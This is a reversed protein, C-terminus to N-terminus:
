TYIDAKASVELGLLLEPNCLFFAAHEPMLLQLCLFNIWAHATRMLDAYTFAARCALRLLKTLCPCRACASMRSLLPM